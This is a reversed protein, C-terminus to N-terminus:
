RHARVSGLQRTPVTHTLYCHSISNSLERLQEELSIVFRELQERRGDSNTEVLADVDTLRLSAQAGLMIRQEPSRHPNEPDSPLQDVHESLANLQFGVARPNTEDILVLDLLPAFQLSALYRNRYTMSSDAIELIAELLSTLQPCPDVLTRRVLGLIQTAREIRRGMDLFRWGPGRTMSETGLGGFATLLNLLFVNKSYQNTRGPTQSTLTM